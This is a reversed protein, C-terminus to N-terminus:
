GKRNVFNEFWDDEFGDDVEGIPPLDMLKKSYVEQLDKLRNGEVRKEFNESM